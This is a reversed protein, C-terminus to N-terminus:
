LLEVFCLLRLDIFGLGLPFFQGFLLFNSLHILRLLWFVWVKQRLNKVNRLFVSHNLVLCLISTQHVGVLLSPLLSPDM